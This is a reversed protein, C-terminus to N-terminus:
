EDGTDATAPAMSNDAPEGILIAGEADRRLLADAAEDLTHLHQSCQPRLIGRRMTALKVIEPVNSDAWRRDLLGARQQIVDPPYAM